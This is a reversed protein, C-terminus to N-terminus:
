DCVNSRFDNILDLMELVSWSFLLRSVIWSLWALLNVVSNMFESAKYDSYRFMSDPHKTSGGWLEFYTDKTELSSYLAYGRGFVGNDVREM